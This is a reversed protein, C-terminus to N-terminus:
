TSLRPNSKPQHYFSRTKPKLPFLLLLSFPLSHFLLRSSHLHFNPPFYKHLTASGPIPPWGQKRRRNKKNNSSHLQGHKKKRDKSLLSDKQFGQWANETAHNSTHMTKGNKRKAKHMPNWKIHHSIQFSLTNRNNCQPATNKRKKIENQPTIWKKASCVNRLIFTGVENVTPDIQFKLLSDKVCLQQSQYTPDQIPAKYHSYNKDCSWQLQTTSLM